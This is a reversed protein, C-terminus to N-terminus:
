TVVSAHAEGKTTSRMIEDIRNLLEGGKENRQSSFDIAVSTKSRGLSEVNFRVVWKDRDFLHGYQTNRIIIIGKVKDTEELTWEPFSNLAELTRLYTYDYPHDYILVQDYIPFDKKSSTCGLVLILSFFVSLVKLCHTKM